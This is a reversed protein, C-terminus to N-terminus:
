FGLERYIDEILERAEDRNRADLSSNLDAYILLLPAVDPCDGERLPAWFADLIEIPGDPDPRLQHRAVLKERDGRCYITAQRPQPSSAQGAGCADKDRYTESLIAVAVEGSWVAGDLELQATKWWGKSAASYRQPNLKPRLGTPYIDAWLMSAEFVHNQNPWRVKPTNDFFPWRMLFKRARAASHRSVGAFRAVASISYEDLDPTELITFLMRQVTASRMIQLGRWSPTIARRPRGSIFVRCGPVNIRANGAADIFNLRLQRCLDAAAPPMYPVVLLKRLSHRDKAPRAAIQRLTDLRDFVGIVARFMPEKLGFEDPPGIRLLPGTGDWYKPSSPCAQWQVETGTAQLAIDFITRDYM